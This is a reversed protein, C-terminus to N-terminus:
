KAPSAPYMAVTLTSQVKIVVTVATVTTPDRMPVSKVERTGSVVRRLPNPTNTRIMPIKTSKWYSGVGKPGIRATPANARDPTGRRHRKSLSRQGNNGDKRACVQAVCWSGVGLPRTRVLLARRGGIYRLPLARLHLSSP